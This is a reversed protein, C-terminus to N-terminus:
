GAAFLLGAECLECSCLNICSIQLHYGEAIKYMYIAQKSQVQCRCFLSDSSEICSQAYVVIDRRQARRGEVGFARWVHEHGYRACLLSCRQHSKAATAAM